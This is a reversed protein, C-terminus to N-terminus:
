NIVFKCKVVACTLLIGFADKDGKGKWNFKVALETKIICKMIRRVCDKVNEGGITGFYNIQFL